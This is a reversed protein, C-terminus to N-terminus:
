TSSALVELGDQTLWYVNTTGVTEAKLYGADVM